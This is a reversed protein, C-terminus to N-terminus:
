RRAPTENVNGPASAVIVPHIARPNGANFRKEPSFIHM